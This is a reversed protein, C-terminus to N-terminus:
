GAVITVVWSLGVWAGLASGVTAMFAVLLVRTFANKYIGQLSQVDDNIREADEVTPKRLWAELLGVVMGAGLLPNLSTIPSAIFACLISLLKAGAITTLLAAFLTVFPM